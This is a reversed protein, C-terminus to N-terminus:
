GVCVTPSGTVIPALFSGGGPGVAGSALDGIRAIPTCGPGNVTVIAGKLDLPGGAQVTASANAKLTASIGGEVKVDTGGKLNLATDSQVTVGTQSVSVTTAGPADITVGTDTVSISYQGNPSTFTGSFPEGDAGDQGDAGKQGNCVYATAGAADTIAAGGTACHADGAGLQAVAPSIGNAGPSGKQSFTIETELAASCHQKAPDIIRITGVNKLMCAHYTGDADPIAAFAIGGAVAFLALTAVAFRVGRGAFISSM